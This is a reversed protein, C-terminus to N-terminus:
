PLPIGKKRILKKGATIVKKGVEELIKGIVGKAAKVKALTKKEAANVGKIVSRATPKLAAKKATKALFVKTLFRQKNAAMVKQYELKTYSAYKNFSQFLNLITSQIYLEGTRAHIGHLFSLQTELYGILWPKTSIFKAFAKEVVTKPKELIEHLASSFVYQPRGDVIKISDKMRSRFDKKGTKVETAVMKKLMSQYFDVFTEETIMVAKETSSNARVTRGITLDDPM